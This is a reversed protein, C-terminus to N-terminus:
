IAHLQFVTQTADTALKDLIEYSTGEISVADGEAFSGIESTPGTFEWADQARRTEGSDRETASNELIGRSEVPDGGAAATFTALIGTEFLVSSPEVLTM